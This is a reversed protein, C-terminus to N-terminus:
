GGLLKRVSGGGSLGVVRDVYDNGPKPATATKGGANLRQRTRSEEDRKRSEAGAKVLAKAESASVKSESNLSELLRAAARYREIYTLKAATEPDPHDAKIKLLGPHQTVLRNYPIPAFEEGKHVVPKGGDPAFLKEFLEKKGTKLLEAQASDRALEDQRRERTQKSEQLVDSFQAKWSDLEQKFAHQSLAIAVPVAEMFRRKFLANQVENVKATDGKDWAEALATEGEVLDKWNDGVDGFRFPEPPKGEGAAPPKQVGEAPAPSKAGEETKTEAQEKEWPTLWEGEQDENRKGELNKNEREALILLADRNKEPDLGTEEAIKRVLEEIEDSPSEGKEGSGDEKAGSEDEPIEDTATSRDDVDGAPEEKFSDTDDVKSPDYIGDPVDRSEVGLDPDATPRLLSGFSGASGSAGTNVSTTDAVAM